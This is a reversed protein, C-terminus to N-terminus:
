RDGERPPLILRLLRDHLGGGYERFRYKRLIYEGAFLLGMVAYAIGGNYAAWARVYAPDWGLIAAVLANLGFFIVWAWTAQRCHAVQAESMEGEIKLRAFREIMSVGRLSVGFTVMMAFNILVPMALVFRQDDFVAGAGIVVTIVLPIRLVAWLDERRAARLRYVATPVVLALVWLSVARASFHTLGFWIGLPYVVVFIATLVGVLIKM